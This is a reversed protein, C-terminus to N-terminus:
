CKFALNMRTTSMMSGTWKVFMFLEECVAFGTELPFRCIWSVGAAALSVLCVIPFDNVSTAGRGVSLEGCDALHGNGHLSISELTM